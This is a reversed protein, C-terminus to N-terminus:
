QRELVHVTVPFSENGPMVGTVMRVTTFGFKAYLALAPENGDLVEIEADDQVRELAFRMLESGVGQRACSRDVYLWALETDSFAIFGVVLGKDEAVYVQYEFLGEREAAISLPLFAAPLGAYELESKRAPDHVQCLREFDKEEYKRINLQLSMKIGGVECIRRCVPGGTLIVGWFPTNDGSGAFLTSFVVDLV